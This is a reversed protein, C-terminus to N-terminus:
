AEEKIDQSYILRQYRGNRTQSPATQIPLGAPASSVTTVTLDSGTGYESLILATKHVSDYFASM